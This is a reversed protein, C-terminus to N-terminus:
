GDGDLALTLFAHLLLEVETCTKLAHFKTTFIAMEVAKGIIRM